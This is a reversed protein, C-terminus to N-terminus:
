NMNLVAAESSDAFTNCIPQSPYNQSILLFHKVVSTCFYPITLTPMKESFGYFTKKLTYKKVSIHMAVKGYEIGYVLFNKALDKNVVLGNFVM